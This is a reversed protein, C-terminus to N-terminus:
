GRTAPAIVWSYLPEGDAATSATVGEARLHTAAIEARGSPCHALVDAM